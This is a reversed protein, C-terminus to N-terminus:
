GFLRSWFGKIPMAPNSEKELQIETVLADLLGQASEDGKEAARELWRKAEPRSVEVGGKGTWYILGLLRMAEPVDALAAREAWQLANAPDSLPGEGNYHYVALGFCAQPLGANAADTWYTFAEQYRKQGYLHGAYREMCYPVKAEAGQRCYREAAEGDYEWDERFNSSHIMVLWRYADRIGGAAAVQLLKETKQRDPAKTAALWGGLDYAALAIDVMAARELWQLGQSISFYESLQEDDIWPLTPSFLKMNYLLFRGFFYMSTPHGNEAARRLWSVAELQESPTKKFCLMMALPFMAKSSGLNAWLNFFALALAEIEKDGSFRNGLEWENSDDKQSLSPTLDELTTELIKLPDSSDSIACVHGAFVRRAVGLSFGEFLKRQDGLEEFELAWLLGGSFNGRALALDFLENTRAEDRNLGWEGLHSKLALGACAAASGNKAAEITMQLAKEEDQALGGKGESILCALYYTSRPDSANVGREYWARAKLEDQPFGAEGNEYLAGIYSCAAENGENLVERYLLHAKTPNPRISGIGDLLMRGYILKAQQHGASALSQIRSLYRKKAEQAGQTTPPNGWNLDEALILMENDVDILEGTLRPRKELGWDSLDFGKNAKGKFRTRAQDIAAELDAQGPYAVRDDMGCKPCVPNDARRECKIEGILCHMKEAIM